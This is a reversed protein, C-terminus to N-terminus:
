PPAAALCGEVTAPLDPSVFTCSTQLQPNGCATALQDSAVPISTLKFVTPIALGRGDALDIALLAGRRAPANVGFTGKPTVDLRCGSASLEVEVNDVVDWSLRGDFGAYKTAGLIQTCERGGTPLDVTATGECLQYAAPSSSNDFPAFATCEMALGPLTGTVQLDRACTWDMCRECVAETACYRSPECSTPDSARGDVCAPGGLRCHDSATTVCSLARLEPPRTDMYVTPSCELENDDRLGDCDVDKDDHVLFATRHSEDDVDARRNEVHVCTQENEGWLELQNNRTRMTPDQADASANLGLPYRTFDGGGVHRVHFLSASSTPRGRTYGVAVVMGLEAREDLVFRFEAPNGPSIAQSDSEYELTWYAGVRQEGRHFGAPAIAVEDHEDMGVFLKVTDPLEAAPDEGFDAPSYVVIQVDTKEGGCALMFASCAIVGLIRM